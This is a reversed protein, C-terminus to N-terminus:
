YPEVPAWCKEGRKVVPKDKAERKWINQVEIRDATPDDPKFWGIKIESILVWYDIGRKKVLTETIKCGYRLEANERERVPDVSARSNARVPEIPRDRPM